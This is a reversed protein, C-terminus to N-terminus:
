SQLGNIVGTSSVGRVLILVVKSVLNPALVVASPANPSPRLLPRGPLNNTGMKRLTKIAMSLAQTNPIVFNRSSIFLLHHLPQRSTRGLM